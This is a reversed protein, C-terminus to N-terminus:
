RDIILLSFTNIVVIGTNVHYISYTNTLSGWFAYDIFLCVITDHIVIYPKYATTEHINDCQQITRRDGMMYNM